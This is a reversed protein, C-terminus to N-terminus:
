RATSRIARVIADRDATSRTCPYSPMGSVARLGKQNYRWALLRSLPRLWRRRGVAMVIRRKLSVPASARPADVVARICQRAERESLGTSDALMLSLATLYGEYEETNRVRDLPVTTETASGSIQERASYFVPLTAYRGQILMALNFFEEALFLNRFRLEGESDFCYSYIRRFLDTRTTGYLMSAYIGKQNELRGIPDPNDIRSLFNRIYRPYFDIRGGQRPTFTLYHGQAVSHDPNAELFDTMAKIGAPVAFDDDACYLVYRTSILPMVERLKLLFHMGPFHRYTILPDDVPGTYIETSSDPILLRAGTGKYYDILRRLREPRNHAPIIITVDSLM